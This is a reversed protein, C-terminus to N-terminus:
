VNKHKLSTKDSRRALPNTLNIIHPISHTNTKKIKFKKIEQSKFYATNCLNTDTFHLWFSYRMASTKYTFYLELDNNTILKLYKARLM